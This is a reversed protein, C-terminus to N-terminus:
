RKNTTATNGLSKIETPVARRRTAHVVVYRAKRQRPSNTDPATFVFAIGREVDDYWDLGKGTQDDYLYTTRKLKPYARLVRELSVGPGIGKADRYEKASVKVQTVRGAEYLVEMVTGDSTDRWVEGVRKGHTAFSKDPPGLQEKVSKRSQGLDIDGLGKGPKVVFTMQGVAPM